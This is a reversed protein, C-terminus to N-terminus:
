VVKREQPAKAGGVKADKPPHEVLHLPAEVAGIAPVRRICAVEVDRLQSVLENKGVIPSEPDVGFDVEEQPYAGASVEIVELEPM